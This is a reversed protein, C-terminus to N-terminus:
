KGISIVQHEEFRVEDGEALGRVQQGAPEFGSFVGTFIGGDTVRIDRVLVSTGESHLIVNTAEAIGFDTLSKDSDYDSVKFIGVKANRTDFAPM